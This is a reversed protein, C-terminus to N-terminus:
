GQLGAKQARTPPETERPRRTRPKGRLATESSGFHYHGRAAREGGKEEGHFMKPPGTRGDLGQKKPGAFFHRM